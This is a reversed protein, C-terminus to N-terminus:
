VSNFMIVHRFLAPLFMHFIFLWRNDNERELGVNEIV